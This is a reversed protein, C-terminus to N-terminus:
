EDRRIPTMGLATRVGNIRDLLGGRAIDLGATLGGGAEMSYNSCPIRGELMDLWRRLETEDEFWLATELMEQAIAKDSLEAREWGDCGSCSGYWWEYFSYTNGKKALFSAHGQYHAESDEWLIDWDGWIQEAVTGYRCQSAVTKHWEM